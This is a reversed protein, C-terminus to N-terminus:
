SSTTIHKLDCILTGSYILKQTEASHGQEAQIRAKVDGITDSPEADITFQKQQLTKVTIKMAPNDDLCVYTSLLIAFHIERETPILNPARM